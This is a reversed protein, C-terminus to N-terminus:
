LPVEGTDLFFTAKANGDGDTPNTSFWRGWGPHSMLLEPAGSNPVGIVWISSPLWADGSLITMSVIHKGKLFDMDNYGLGIVDFRYEDTRGRERENHPHPLFDLHNFKGPETPHRINLRFSADTQADTATSTTHIAIITNLPFGM